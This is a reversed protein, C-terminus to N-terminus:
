KKRLDWAEMIGYMPLFEFSKVSPVKEATWGGKQEFRTKM